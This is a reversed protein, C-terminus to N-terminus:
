LQMYDKESIIPISLEKAKKNKGSTSTLDNNILYTTKKSVSGSVKGGRAEIEAKLEDRNSYHELSGTIVFTMGSLDLDETKKGTIVLDDEVTLEALVAEYETLNANYWLVMNKATIQGIGDMGSLKEMAIPDELLRKLLETKKEGAHSSFERELIKSVEHGAGPIGLCYFFHRFTTTRATEVSNILKTYSKEGFGEMQMIKDKYQELHFVSSRDHLFGAKLFDDIVEGALGVVNLGDKCVLREFRGKHKAACKPNSCALFESSGDKNKQRLTEAGCVPCTKPIHIYNGNKTLNECLQPIIMNAKYVTVKDGYGLEMNKLYRINHLSARKVTTGELEVPDFVAVPNLLGSASASWEVDRLVTEETTDAWKFAIGSRPYKGTVGLSLGYPIYDYVLVLGDTPFDNESVKEEYRGITEVVTDATVRTHEVVAFGLAEMWAFASEYTLVVESEANVLEFAKFIMHRSAAVKSDLLRLSGSTLNRPNKYKADPDIITDNIRDFDNYGTMVEGRVILKGSYSIEQPIGAIYKANHTVDEGVYGDGRTVASVLRAKQYPLLHDPVDYTLVVTLGDCKWSLMGYQDGLWSRLYERDKTKDLSLAPYEHRTKKLSSVAEYGVKQTPSDPLVIGTRAEMLLLEDYLEDYEKDTMSSEHGSYYEKAAMNLTSVLDKMKTEM